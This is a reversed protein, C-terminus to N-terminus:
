CPCFLTSEPLLKPPIPIEMPGYIDILWMKMLHIPADLFKRQYVAYKLIHLASRIRAVHIFRRPPLSYNKSNSPTANSKISQSENAIRKHSHSLM